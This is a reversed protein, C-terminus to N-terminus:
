PSRLHHSSLFSGTSGVPHPSLLYESICGLRETRKVQRGEPFVIKATGLHCPFFSVGMGAEELKRDDLSPALVSFHHQSASLFTMAGSLSQSSM